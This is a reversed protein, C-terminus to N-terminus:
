REYPRRSGPCFHLNRGRNSTITSQRLSTSSAMGTWFCRRVCLLGGRSGYLDPGFDVQQLGLATRVGEQKEEDCYFLLFGGGGAGLLKGGAAGAAMARDYLQSIEPSSIGGALTQKRLWGRHLADGFNLTFGNTMLDHYMSGAQQKMENLVEIKSQTNKKQETLM